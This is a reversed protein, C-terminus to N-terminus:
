VKFATRQEWSNVWLCFVLQETLQTGPATACSSHETAQPSQAAVGPVPPCHPGSRVQKEKQWPLCSSMLPTLGERVERSCVQLMEARTPRPAQGLPQLADCRSVALSGWGVGFRHSLLASWPLHPWSSKWHAAEAKCKIPKLSDIWLDWPTLCLYLKKEWLLSPIHPCPEAVISFDWELLFTM